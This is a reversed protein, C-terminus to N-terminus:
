RILSLMVFLLFVTVYVFSIDECHNILYIKKEEVDVIMRKKEERKKYCQSTYSTKKNKIRGVYTHCHHIM